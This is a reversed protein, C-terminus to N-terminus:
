RRTTRDRLGALIEELEGPFKAKFLRPESEEPIRILLKSAHLFLRDCETSPRKRGYLPDGLIPHGIYALHVRIQHTRGTIPHVELFAHKEFNELTHYVSIAERGKAGHIVAMRKRNHRDRGLPAEIRGEPTKPIGDVLALYSKKVRRHSFQSQLYRHTKDDKALILVGSTDKDLRHVLGPRREGGVGEIEPAHALVANVVTGHRHGASPHVVMGHPKDIVLVHDNEFIVQLPIKEARLHSDEKEPLTLQIREGGELQYAPKQIIEGDVNVWGDRIIKQIQNRSVEELSSALIADLRGGPPLANVIKSRPKM